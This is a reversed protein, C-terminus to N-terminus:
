TLNLADLPDFINFQKSHWLLVYDSIGFMVIELLRLYNRSSM